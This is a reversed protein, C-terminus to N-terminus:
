IKGQWIRKVTGLFVKAKQKWTADQAYKKLLRRDVKPVRRGCIRYGCLKARMTTKRTYQHKQIIQLQKLDEWEATQIYGAAEAERLLTIGKENRAFAVNRGDNEAFDPEGDKIYWGDGCAIDAAEGIGDVCIRCYPHVDRGLIQGWARSYEMTYEMGDKAVATTYGPWGNGRYSLSVCADSGCGIKTLLEKQADKSPLGACFFSFLYEIGKYNENVDCLRRLAAIDCPKGIAAYRKGEQIMQSLNIWPSSISYRSGCCAVVQEKTESIRCRTKTPNENDVSVQIIGDVKGTELLYVSLATLLGGSSAKKRIIPDTAYASVAREVNGWISNSELKEKHDMIVPCVKQLFIDQEDLFVPHVYGKENEQMELALESRCIGCGICYQACLKTDKM